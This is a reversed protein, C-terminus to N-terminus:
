TLCTAVAVLSHDVGSDNGGDVVVTESVHNLRVESIWLEYDSAAQDDPTWFGYGGILEEGAACAATSTEVNYAGNQGAGGLVLTPSPDPRDVIRDGIESAGVAAANIDVSGVSNDAIESSGVADANIQLNSFPGSLDGGAATAIRLFGSSDAGDLRDANLNAVKTGSNVTFPPKGGAVSLGLATAGAGTNMNTVQLAKNAIGASLSTQSTATNAQGLIFNGGTAAYGASGLAIFLALCSIVLSPSPRHKVLRQLL